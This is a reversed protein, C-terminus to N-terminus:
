ICHLFRLLEFTQVDIKFMNDKFYKSKLSQCSIIKRCVRNKFFIFIQLMSYYNFCSKTLEFYKFIGMDFKKVVLILTRIRSRIELFSWPGKLKYIPIKSMYKLTLPFNSTVFGQLVSLSNSYRCFIRNKQHSMSFNIIASM